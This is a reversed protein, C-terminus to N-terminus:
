GMMERIGGNLNSAMKWVLRIGLKHNDGPPDGWRAPADPGAVVMVADPKGATFAIWGVELVDLAPIARFDEPEIKSAVSEWEGGVAQVREILSFTGNRADFKMVPLFEGKTSKKGIAM